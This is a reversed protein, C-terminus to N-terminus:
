QPDGKGCETPELPSQFRRAALDGPRGHVVRRGAAMSVLDNVRISSEWAPRAAAFADGPAVTDMRRAVHIGKVEIM